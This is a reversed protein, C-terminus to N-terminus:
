QQRDHVSTFRSQWVILLDSSGTEKIEHKADLKREKGCLFFVRLARSAKARSGHRDFRVAFGHPKANDALRRDIQDRGLVVLCLQM